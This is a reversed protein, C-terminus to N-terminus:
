NRNLNFTGGREQARAPPRLRESDRLEDLVIGLRAVLDNAALIRRRTEPPYRLLGALRGPLEALSSGIPLLAHCPSRPDAALARLISLVEQSVKELAREDSIVEPLDEVRALPFPTARVFELLRVRAVGRLVVEARGDPLYSRADIRGVGLHPLVDPAGIPNRGLGARFCAVGILREGTLAHALLLRHREEYIYLPFLEGPLLCAGPLPLVPVVGTRSEAEFCTM